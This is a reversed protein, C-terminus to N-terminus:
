VPVLLCLLRASVTVPILRRPSLAPHSFHLTSKFPFHSYEACEDDDGSDGVTYVEFTCVFYSKMSERIDDESPLGQM